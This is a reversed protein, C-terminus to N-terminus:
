AVGEYFSFEEIVANVEPISTIAGGMGPTIFTYHATETSMSSSREDYDSPNEVIFHRALRTAARSVQAPVVKYGHEYAVSVNQFGEPWGGPNWVTGAPGNIKLTGAEVAAGGISVDRISLVRPTGLLLKPRGSGDMEERAYRPRFAVSCTDELWLEALNRAAILGDTSPAPTVSNPLAAKIAALTTLFGGVIENHTVFTQEVGEVKATWTTELVDLLATQAPTLVFSYEGEAGTSTAEEILVEGNERRVVLKPLEDAAVAEGADNMSLRLECSTSRLLFYGSSIATGGGEFEEVTVTM